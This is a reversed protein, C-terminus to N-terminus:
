LLGKLDMSEINKQFSNLFLSGGFGDILRHDFGLTTVM